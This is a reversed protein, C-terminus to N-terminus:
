PSPDPGTDTKGPGNKRVVKTLSQAMAPDGLLADVLSARLVSSGLADSGQFAATNMRSAQIPIGQAPTPKARLTRSALSVTPTTVLAGVHDLPAIGVAVAAASGSGLVVPNILVPTSRRFTTAPTKQAQPFFTLAPADLMMSPVKPSGLKSGSGVLQSHGHVNGSVVFSHFVTVADIGGSGVGGTNTYTTDQLFGVTPGTYTTTPGHYAVLDSVLKNAIPTGLGTVLNYGANANYGNSGSTISNYDAQPLMYLAQQTENPTSTNFNAEGANVRGQNTIALLGAWSPASLSTGGVIEFPNDGPLNYPDAIWAGTAPDAVLSVDPTTRSGTSQVGQHYAPEGEYLSIGGGSGIYEGLGTSYYGWGTESNYSNDSNVTLSTGGVAVVNPSFAPYQPVAAGNDGTSAVFTVGPTTFYSDYTAEDSALVDLGEVYGWSMSVVAVGPQSAATAVGAMLDSLSDSNTEVLVIHAGPAIAHVWEADLSAEVEWNNTGAGSPDAAPLSTSQGSQNLVTLFTSAPGYQDYLKQGGTTLGFQSDFTDLALYISPDDYASVIAITQGTGDLSLNNIGYATRIQAPSYAVTGSPPTLSVSKAIANGSITLTDVVISVPNSTSGIQANGSAVLQAGAAYITGGMGQVVNGSLTIAKPNCRDQFFLVGAYTGSPSATLSGNGSLAISGWAGSNGKTNYITVGSGTVTANGSVIFGGGTIIYLGSTMTLSANGSVTIQSYVGPGITATSNGSLVEATGTGSYTPVNLSGLPDSFTSIGTTPTPSLSANGSKSVGGVVKIAGATVKANGSALIASSSNSDVMVNGGVNINANGSVNLAGGASADLVYISATNPTSLTVTLTGYNNTVTYNALKSTPDSLTASIQYSGVPAAATAGASAFSGITINDGYKQGTVSGTFATFV